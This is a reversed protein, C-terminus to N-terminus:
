CALFPALKADQQVGTSADARRLPSGQAAPAARRFRKSLGGILFPFYETREDLGTSPNERLATLSRRLRGKVLKLPHKMRGRPILLNSFRQSPPSQRV